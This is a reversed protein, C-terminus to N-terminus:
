SITECTKSSDYKRNSSFSQTSLTKSTSAVQFM